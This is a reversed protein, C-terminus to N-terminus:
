LLAIIIGTYVICRRPLIGVCLCWAANFLIKYPVRKVLNKFDLYVCCHLVLHMLASPYKAINLHQNSLEYARWAALVAGFLQPFSDFISGAM